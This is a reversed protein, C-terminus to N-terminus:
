ASWALSPSDVNLTTNESAVTALFNHINIQAWLTLNAVAQNETNEIQAYAATANNILSTIFSTTTLINLAETSDNEQEVALSDSVSSVANELDSSLDASVGQGLSVLESVSGLATMLEDSYGTIVSTASSNFEDLVSESDAFTQHTLAIYSDIISSFADAVDGITNLDAMNLSSASQLAQQLSIKGAQVKALLLQLQITATTNLDQVMQSVGVLGGKSYSALTAISQASANFTQLSNVMNNGIASVALSRTMVNGKAIQQLNQAAMKTDAEM